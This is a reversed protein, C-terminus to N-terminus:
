LVKRFSNNDDDFYFASATLILRLERLFRVISARRGAGFSCEAPVKVM